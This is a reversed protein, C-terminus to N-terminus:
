RLTSSGRREKKASNPASLVPEQTAKPFSPTAGYVIRVTKWTLISSLALVGTMVIHTYHFSQLTNSDITTHQWYYLSVFRLVVVTCRISWLSKLGHMRGTLSNTKLELKPNWWITLLDVLVAYLLWKVIYPSLVCVGNVSRLTIAQRLCTSWAFVRHEDITEDPATITGAAHWLLGVATSLIYTWKALSIARLTWAQRSTYVTTRKEKSAELIRALNDARAVHNANRIQNQVRPLCDKCVQPYREELEIKYDDYAALYKEYQPDDEDPIFEALLSTYLTQNHQCADCFIDEARASM